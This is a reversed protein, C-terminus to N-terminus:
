PLAPDKIWQTPGPILGADEHISTLNMIVSGCPSNWGFGDQSLFIFIYVDHERVGLLIVFSYYDFYYSIPM